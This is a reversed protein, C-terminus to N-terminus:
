IFGKRLTSSSEIKLEGGGGLKDEFVESDQIQIGGLTWAWTKLQGIFIEV